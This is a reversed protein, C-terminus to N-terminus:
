LSILDNMDSWLPAEVEKREGLIDLFSISFAHLLHRPFPLHKNKKPSYLKDGVIPHNISNMHVRIQHTRGTKPMIKVLSFIQKQWEFVKIPEYFTLAEKRMKQGHTSRRTSGHVLGIAADIKGGERVEGHVIGLYVKEVRRELFEKKIHTYFSQTRAIILAGSTERDLRHVVGPRYLLDDGVEAVEPFMEKAWSVITDTESQHSFTHVLVGPPKSVVICHDDIHLIPIDM